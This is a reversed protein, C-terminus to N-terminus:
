GDVGIGCRAIFVDHSRGLVFCDKPIVRIVRTDVNIVGARLYDCNCISRGEYLGKLLENQKAPRALCWEFPVAIGRIVKHDLCVSAGTRPPNLTWIRIIAYEKSITQNNWLGCVGYVRYDHRVQQVSVVVIGSVTLESYVLSRSVEEYPKIGVLFILQDHKHTVANVHNVVDRSGTRRVSVLDGTLM